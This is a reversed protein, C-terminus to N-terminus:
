IMRGRGAVPGGLACSGRPRCAASSSVGGGRRRSSIRRGPRRPVVARLEAACGSPGSGASASRAAPRICGAGAASTSGSSRWPRCGPGRANLSAVNKDVIVCCGARGSCGGCSTAPTTSRRRPELHEFVEVAIARTSAARGSRSGGPRHRPRSRARAAEASCRRPSTWGSWGLAASSRPRPRVPGQRMGPRPDARGSLPGLAEVIGRLRYDDAAVDTKFRGHLLTSGAVAVEARSPDVIMLPGGRLTWSASSGPGSRRRCARSCRLVHVGRPRRPLGAQVYLKLFTWFPRLTLDSPGSGGGPATWTAPGRADHLPRDQRPLGRRRRSRGTSWRTGCGASRGRSSSRRTSWGRGGGATAASSGSRSTTSRGRSVRVAPGPDRQPDAGSLRRETRSPDGIAARIEAALEPTVREDADISLVWDGSALELGANRQGAFDDFARVLVVDADRRAIELTGDRSAADVVVVREDAFRGLGPLRRPETGRGPGRGPRQPRPEPMPWGKGIGGGLARLPFYVAYAVLALDLRGFLPWSSGSTGASTPMGRWASWGGSTRSRHGAASDLTRRRNEADDARSTDEPRSRSPRAPSRSSAPVPIQGVRLAIGLPWGARCARRRRVRVLRHRRPPGPRVLEDLVDDLWRGFASGTGQLRRWAATPPTSSWPRRWPWRRDRVSRIVAQAAPRRRHRGGRAHTRGRRADRVNPRFLSPELVAALREALPFAWFRGLPQYTLRRTLEDEAAGLRRPATSGGSRPPRPTQGTRMARRLRRGDYFRDTRLVAADAQPPGDVIQVRDSGPRRGAARLLRTSTRAPTCPSRSAPLRSDVDGPRAPPGLM